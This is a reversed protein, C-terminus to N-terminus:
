NLNIALSFTHTNTAPHYKAFAYNVKFRKVKVGFGVSLGAFTRTEKLKLEQARQFNYGARISFGSDPFLEAGIIFHRFANNFFGPVNDTVNGNLDVTQESPNSYALQWRQLNDFTTHFKLPVHELQYSWGLAIRLPMRERVDDYSSLQVGLNRVVLALTYSKDFPRYSVGLDTAIGMSNFEEISSQIIKLNAGVHIDSLPFRYGYGVSFAMDYAKFAGTENGEEDSAIFKGYNLYTLNAYFVGLKENVKYAYDGSFYNIDGLFNVYNLMLQNDIGSTIMSPNWLAQNVDGDLTLTSGGLAVQKASTSTNLFTYVQEGGVQAFLHSTVFFLFIVRKIMCKSFAM